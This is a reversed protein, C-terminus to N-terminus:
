PINYSPGLADPRVIRITGGNNAAQFGRIQPTNATKIGITGDLINGSRPFFVDPIRFGDSPIDLRRNIRVIDDGFGRSNAFEILERRAARDVLQGM